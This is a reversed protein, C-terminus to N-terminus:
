GKLLEEIYGSLKRAIDKAPIDPEYKCWRTLVASSGGCIFYVATEERLSSHGWLRELFPVLAKSVGDESLLQRFVPPSKQFRTCFELLIEYSNRKEIHVESLMRDLFSALCKDALDQPVSYYKYFTTRNVGAERCLQSVTMEELTTEELLKLFAAMLRKKTKEIKANM